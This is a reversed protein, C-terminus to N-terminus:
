ITVFKRWKLRDEHEKVLHGNISGALEKIIMGYLDDEAWRTGIIIMEGGPDLLPRSNRYFTIVKEIQEKTNINNEDVLDDHIILDYHGGTLATELGATSVSAEKVTPLTRQGITIEDRTWTREAVRFDGYISPLDSNFTLYDAIQRLFKRSMNWTANTILIRLDPNRLLRQITYGVTVVSSKLHGRPVLILKEPGSNDLYRAIDDHLGDWATMKLMDKCLFKLSGECGRKLAAIHTEEIKAAAFDKISLGKPNSKAHNKRKQWIKERFVTSIRRFKCIALAPRKVV